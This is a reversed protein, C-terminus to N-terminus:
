NSTSSVFVDFIWHAQPKNNNSILFTTLYDLNEVRHDCPLVAHQGYTIILIHGPGGEITFYKSHFWIRSDEQSFTIHTPVRVSKLQNKIMEVDECCLASIFQTSTVWKIQPSASQNLEVRETM